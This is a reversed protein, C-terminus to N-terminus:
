RKAGMAWVILNLFLRDSAPHHGVHKLVNMANLVLRGKGLKYVGLAIGADYGTPKCYGVAFAAIIPEVPQTKGQFMEQPILDGYYNWDLLGPGQLGAMVPHPRAVHERHYLWDNFPVCSLVDRLPLWRSRDDGEVFAKSELCVVTGGRRALDTVAQWGKAPHEESPYGILL